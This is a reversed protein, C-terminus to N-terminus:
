GCEEPVGLAFYCPITFTATEQLWFNGLSFLPLNLFSTFQYCTRVEVSRPMTGDANTAQVNSPGAVLSSCETPLAGSGPDARTACSTDQSDHICVIVAPMDTKPPSSVDVMDPCTATNTDYNTNPLDRLEACVVSAGYAHLPDYYATTGLPAPAGLPGPPTALYQNAVAEAANRTATELQIGTAFIRGFDAIAVFLVILIPVVLGFEVM